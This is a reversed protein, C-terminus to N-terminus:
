AMAELRGVYHDIEARSRKETVAVLFCDALEPFFPELPVGGLIRQRRLEALVEDVPLRSRVVFEKFFPQGPFALDFRELRAIREALYHSKQLCLDAVAVLGHKGLCTMYVTAALANLAQNTCINSTARERRIHQERAQLTLVYGRRGESDVTAGAIRGPLRRLYAERAALFGFAPGGYSLPNGLPQGEGVVIDAGYDGPAKLVGLSIPDAAVVLLAGAQKALRGVEAAPEVIGLFNPVQLAVCAVDAGAGLARELAELDVAGERVPVESVRLGQRETYTRVVQRYEPHITGALVIRERRTVNVAMLAAEALASAGDYMSANAVDMGTLECIMTQFEYIAQLNGQSVEPQYPTYSTYFEGRSIIEDVLAPIFHDYMGGGLFCTYEGVHGNSAALREMHRLLEYESLAPPLQLPRNLRVDAPIDAFLEDVSAAGIAALMAARDDATNPLYPHQPPM